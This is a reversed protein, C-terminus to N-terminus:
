DYKPITVVVNGLVRGSEVAEHAAATDALSFCAGVAHKLTGAELETTIDTLASNRAEKPMIYVLVMRITLAESMMPYWPIQPKPNSMSGYAAIAGNPKIITRNFELNAAFDVEIVRDVGDPAFHKVCALPDETKYNVVLDAGAARASAAKELSSVTTIVVAGALKAFQIAYHGVAGAGGAILVTKATLPGDAHILRHATLAPIGLCAGAEFPVKEPLPVALEAPLTVYEAATGFSRRFQANFLWFEKVM